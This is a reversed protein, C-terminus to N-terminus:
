GSRSFDMGLKFVCRYLNLALIRRCSLLHLKQREPESIDSKSDGGRDM